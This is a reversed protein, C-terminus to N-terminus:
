NFVAGYVKSFNQLVGTGNGDFIAPMKALGSITLASAYPIGDSTLVCSWTTLSDNFRWVVRSGHVYYLFKTASFSSANSQSITKAITDGNATRLLFILETGNYGGHDVIGTGTSLTTYEAAGSHPRVTITSGSIYMYLKDSQVGGSWAPVSTEYSDFSNWSLKRYVISGNTKEFYIYSLTLDGSQTEYLRNLRYGATDITESGTSSLSHSDDMYCRTWTSGNRLVLNTRGGDYSMGAIEDAAPLASSAYNRTYVMSSGPSAYKDSTRTIGTSETIFRVYTGDYSIYSTVANEGSLAPSLSFNAGDDSSYAYQTSNVWFLWMGHMYVPRADAACSRSGRLSWTKGNNTSIYFEMDPGTYISRRARIMRGGSTALVLRDYIFAAAGSATAVGSPYWRSTTGTVPYNIGQGLFTLV